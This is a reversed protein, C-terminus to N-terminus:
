MVCMNHLLGIIASGSNFLQLTVVLFELTEESLLVMMSDVGSIVIDNQGTTWNGTGHSSAVFFRWRASTGGHCSARPRLFDLANGLCRRWCCSTLILIQLGFSALLLCKNMAILPQSLDIILVCPLHCTLVVFLQSYGLLLLHRAVRSDHVVICCCSSVCFKYITITCDFTLIHCCAFSWNLVAVTAIDGFHRGEVHRSWVISWSYRRANRPLITNLVLTCVRQALDVTVFVTIFSADM